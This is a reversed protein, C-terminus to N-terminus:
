KESKKEAPNQPARHITLAIVQRVWRAHRKEHPVIVQLPGASAPLPKNDCHDALLITRDTFASDLEPLAFVAQYGDSAEVLLYAAVGKGRLEKGFKVGTQQLIEGLAVGEYRSEQGDHNKAQVSHRPLKSLDALSLKLQREVEGKVNLRFDSTSSSLNAEQGFAMAVCVCTILSVILSSLRVFKM